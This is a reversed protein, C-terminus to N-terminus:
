MYVSFQIRKRGHFQVTGLFITTQHGYCLKNIHGEFLYRKGAFETLFRLKSIFLNFKIIKKHSAINLINSINALYAFNSPNYGCTDTNSVNARNQFMTDTNQFM